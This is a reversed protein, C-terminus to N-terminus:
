ITTGGFIKANRIIKGSSSATAKPFLDVNSVNANNLTTWTDGGDSSVKHYIKGDTRNVEIRVLDNAQATRGSNVTAQTYYLNSFIWIRNSINTWAEYGSEAELGFIFSTSEIVNLVEIQIYGDDGQAIKKSFTAGGNNATATLDSGDDTANTLNTWVADEAGAAEVKNTVAQNTIAALENGSGDTTAGTAPDYSITVTEGDAISRSLGLKPTTTGSGSIVSSITVAGGTASMSWGATTITTAEDFTLDLQSPTANEISAATLTPATADGTTFESTLTATSENGATDRGFYHVKYATEDDLGTIADTEITSGATSITGYAVADTGAEIQAKTRQSTATPHAAWLITGAENIQANFNATTGTVSSVSVNSFTPATADPVQITAASFAQTGADEGDSPTVGFRLYKGEDASQVAYTTATAASINAWGTSGNDSRQWVFTSGSETDDDADAFTYSGTLTQGVAVTGSIQVNSAVPSTNPQEPESLAGSENVLAVSISVGNNGWLAVITYTGAALTEGNETMDGGLTYAISSGQFTLSDTGDLTITAFVGGNPVADTDDIVIVVDDTATYAEMYRLKDFVWTTDFDVAESQIPVEVYVYTTGGSGSESTSTSSTASTSSGIVSGSLAIVSGRLGGQKSRYVYYEQDTLVGNSMEFGSAILQMPDVEIPSQTDRFAMPGYEVPVAIYVYDSAALSQPSFSINNNKRISGSLTLLLAELEADSATLPGEGVYFKNGFQLEVALQIQGLPSGSGDSASLVFERDPQSSESTLTLGTLTDQRVEAGKAVGELTQSEISTAVGSKSYTWVFSAQEVTVGKLPVVGSKYQDGSPNTVISQLTLSASLPVVAVYQITTVKRGSTQVTTAKIPSLGIIEHDSATLGSVINIPDQRCDNCGNAM